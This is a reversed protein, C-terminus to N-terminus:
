RSKPLGFSNEAVQSRQVESTGGYVTTGAAHRHALEIRGLTHKGRVLNDPATLDMLDASDHVFSESAFLKSMPGAARDPIGEELLWLSRWYICYSVQVRTAVQALREIVRDDEIALRGGRKTTEAWKVGAELLHRHPGIFGSGGQELSLVWSLVELGGDVAGVRNDD